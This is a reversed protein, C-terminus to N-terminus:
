PDASIKTVGKGKASLLLPWDEMLFDSTISKPLHLVAQLFSELDFVNEIDIAYGWSELRELIKGRDPTLWDLGFRNVGWQSLMVLTDKAQKQAGLILPALFGIPCERISLPFNQSLAAIGEEGFIPLEGHFWLQDQPFEKKQILDKLKELVSGGERVHFKVGRGVSFLGELIPELSLIEEGM